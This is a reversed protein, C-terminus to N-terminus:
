RFLPLVEVGPVAAIHRPCYLGRKKNGRLLTQESLELGGVARKAYSAPDYIGQEITGVLYCDRGHAAHCTLL